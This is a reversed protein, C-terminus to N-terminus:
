EFLQLEGDKVVFVIPDYIADGNADFSFDGLITPFDMTQALADRIAAADTSGANMIANALIHLTAYAQAAWPGPAEDYKETYAQVFASNGPTDAM